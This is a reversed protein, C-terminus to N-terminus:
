LRWLRELLRSWARPRKGRVVQGLWWKGVWFLTPYQAPRTVLALLMPRMFPSMASPARMLAHGVDAFEPSRLKRLLNLVVEEQERSNRTGRFSYSAHNIRYWALTRPVACFGHRIAITYIAFWDSHWKLAPDFGNVEELARRQVMATNVGLCIHRRQLLAHFELPTVFLPNEDKAYWMGLESEVGHTLTQTEPYWEAFDSVLLRAHPYKALASTLEECMTPLIREDASAMIVFDGKAEKLGRNVAAGVGRREPHCVLKIASSRAAFSQIVSLSDDTSGDDVVIIEDAPRTQALIGALSTRLENSHNYNPLVISVTCRNTAM